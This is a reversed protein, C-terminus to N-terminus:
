CQTLLVASELSQGRISNVNPPAEPSYKQAMNKSHGDRTRLVSASLSDQKTIRKTM